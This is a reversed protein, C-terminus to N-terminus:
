VSVGPVVKFMSTFLSLNGSWLFPWLWTNNLKTPETDQGGQEWMLRKNVNFRLSEDVRSDLTLLESPNLALLLIPIKNDRGKVQEVFSELNLSEGQSRLLSILLDYKKTQMAELAKDVSTVRDIIPPKRLNQQAYEAHMLESLMGDEEFTYSDYDSCLLLVNSVRVTQARATCIPGALPPPVRTGDVRPTVAPYAPPRRAARARSETPVRVMREPASKLSRSLTKSKQFDNLISQLSPPLKVTRVTNTSSLARGGLRATAPAFPTLTAPARQAVAAALPRLGRWIAFM